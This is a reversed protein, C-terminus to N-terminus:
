SLSLYVTATISGGVIGGLLVQGLTHHQLRLRSWGTLCILPLAVVLVSPGLISTLVATAGVMCGTHISLKTWAYNIALFPPMSAIPALTAAIIARPAGLHVLVGLGVLGTFLGFLVPVLRQDRARLNRDGLRGLRVGVIVFAYPLVATFVGTVAAWKLASMISPSVVLAVVTLTGIMVWPPSFVDSVLRAARWAPPNRATGLGAPVITDKETRM